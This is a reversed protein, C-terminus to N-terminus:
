PSLARVKKRVYSVGRMVFDTSVFQLYSVSRAVRFGLRGPSSRRQWERWAPVAVQTLFAAWTEAIRM